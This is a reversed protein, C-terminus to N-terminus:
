KPADRDHWAGMKQYWSKQWVRYENATMACLGLADMECIIRWGGPKQRDDRWKYHQLTVGTNVCVADFEQQDFSARKLNTIQWLRLTNAGVEHIFVGEALWNEDVVIGAGGM